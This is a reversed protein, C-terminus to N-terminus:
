ASSGLRRRAEIRGARRRARRCVARHKLAASVGGSLATRRAGITNVSVGGRVGLTQQGADVSRRRGRSAARRRVADADDDSGRRRRADGSGIVGRRASGLASAPARRRTCRSRTPAAASSRDRQREAGDRGLRVRGFSAMAGIDLGAHTEGAATSTRRRCRALRRQAPQSTPRRREGHVLKLTSGVVLHRGLSQGVTAGFQNLVLSRM